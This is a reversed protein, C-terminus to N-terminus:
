SSLITTEPREATVYAPFTLVFEAGEGEEGAVDITGNFSRIIRNAVALGLGTGKGPEKTTFFPEFVLEFNEQEIGIGTDRMRIVLNKGPGRQRDELIINIDIKRETANKEVIADISNLILNMLLQSFKDRDALLTGDEAPCDLHVEIGNKSLPLQLLDLVTIVAEHVNVPEQNGGKNRAMELLQRILTDIRQLEDLGRRMFQGREEATVDERSILELYGQVIAVPNGIEHALGASLRGIAALKEAQVLEEQADRLRANSEALEAVTKQLRERDKEIRGVMSRMARHLHGLESEAYDPFLGEGDAVQYSNAQKVLRDVPDLVIKKMRFLAMTALIIANLLIYVGIIKQSAGILRVAERTSLLVGIAGVSQDNEHFPYAVVLYAPSFIANEGIIKVKSTVLEKSSMARTVASDLANSFDAKVSGPGAAFYDLTDGPKGSDRVQIQLCSEGLVARVLDVAAVEEVRTGNRRADERQGAYVRLLSVATENQQRVQRSYWLACAVIDTLVMGILLITFVSISIRVKLNHSQIM